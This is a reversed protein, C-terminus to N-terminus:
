PYVCVGDQDVATTNVVMVGLGYTDSITVQYPEQIFQPGSPNQTVSITVNSEDVRSPDASDYTRVRFQFCIYFINNAHLYFM